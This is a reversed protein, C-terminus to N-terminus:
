SATAIQRIEKGFPDTVLSGPVALRMTARNDPTYAPWAPLGPASPRGSAAFSAWCQMMTGRLFFRLGDPDAAARNGSIDSEDWIGNLDFHDFLFVLETAHTAWHGGLVPDGWGFLYMYVPAAHMGAKLEAQTVARHWFTAITGVKMLVDQPSADPKYRRYAAILAGIRGAEVQPLFKGIEGVIADDGPLPPLESRPYYFLAAEDENTGVMLPVDAWLALARPDNMQWPLNGGDVVPSFPAALMDLDSSQAMAARYAEILEQPPVDAIRDVDAPAIGLAGLVAMAEKTGQERSRAEIQSGSQVIAKDFLGKAEPMALLTSIKAGGGSEGFVTVNAPDGGFAAINRRVWRLAEILDLQGPNAAFRDTFEGLYLYGFINLRHNLNVVLTDTAAALAECDYLPVGGSGTQYGGGHIFLMVPRDKGGKPAWINLFLCDESGPLLPDQWAPLDQSDQYSPAGLEVAERIGQWPRVPRPPMFRHEGATSEGYRVGKFINLKETSYGRLTGELTSALPAPSAASVPKLTDVGCGALGTALMSSGLAM